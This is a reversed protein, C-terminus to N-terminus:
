VRNGPAGRMALKKLDWLDQMFLNFESDDQLFRCRFYYTGTWTLAAGNAPATTFTVVGTSSVTYHTGATKLVGAVYISPAANLNQVPETFGFGGAGRTRTLQFATTSGNGTGFSAGTVSQDGPVPFLFSDWQGKVQLFFGALTDLDTGLSGGRLFEYQLAIEWMPYAAMAARLERGSIATKVATSFKPTVTVGWSLGPFTPFVLSSM